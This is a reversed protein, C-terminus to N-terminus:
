TTEKINQIIFRQKGRMTRQLEDTYEITLEISTGFKLNFKKQIAAEDLDTYGDNKVIRLVCKGPIDQVFQYNRVNRFIDSHMNMSTMSIKTGDAGFFLEQTWRGRVEQLLRYHRGCACSQEGAYSAYDGTRYRIFPMARNDFGTCVIEGLKGPEKIVNGDADILEVYGYESQIHYLQSCECWGAIAALESHGYFTFCRARLNREITEKQGPYLNEATVLVAKLTSRYDPRKRQIYDCLILAASPYTHLYEAQWEALKDLIRGINEDSLHYADFILERHKRDYEWLRGYPLTQNRLQAVRSRGRVYGVRGWIANLFPYERKAYFDKECYFRLQKGTTGGTTQVALRSKKVARSLMQEGQALITDKDVFPLQEFEEISKINRYDIQHLRFQEKYYPINEGAYSVTERLKFLEYRAHEERSWWQSRHLLRSYRRYEKGYKVSPPIVGWLWAIGERLGGPMREYIQRIEM